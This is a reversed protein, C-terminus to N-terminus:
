EEKELADFASQETAGMAELDFEFADDLFKSISSTASTLNHGFRETWSMWTTVSMDLGAQMPSGLRTLCYTHIPLIGARLMHETSANMSMGMGWKITGWGMTALM